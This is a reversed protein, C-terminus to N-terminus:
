NCQQCGQRTDKILYDTLEQPINALDAHFGALEGKLENKRLKLM